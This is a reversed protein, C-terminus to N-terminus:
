LAQRNLRRRLYGWASLMGAACGFLIMSSPEPVTPTMTITTGAVFGTASVTFTTSTPIGPDGPASFFDATTTSGIFNHFFGDGDGSISAPQVISAVFHLDTFTFGTGNHFSLSFPTAGLNIPLLNTINTVQLIGVDSTPTEGQILTITGSRLPGATLAVM